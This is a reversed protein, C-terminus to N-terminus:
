RELPGQVQTVGHTEERYHRGAAFEALMTASACQPNNSETNLGKSSGQSVCGTGPVTRRCKARWTPPQPADEVEVCGHGADRAGFTESAPRGAGGGSGSAVRTAARASTSSRLAVDVGLGADLVRLVVVVVVGLVVEAFFLSGGQVRPPVSSGGRQAARRGAWCSRKEHRLLQQLVTGRRRGLFGPEVAEGIEDAGSADGSGSRRARQNERCACPVHRVARRM